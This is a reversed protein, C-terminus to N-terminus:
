EFASLGNDSDIFSSHFIYLCARLSIVLSGKNAVIGSFITKGTFYYIALKKITFILRLKNIYDVTYSM